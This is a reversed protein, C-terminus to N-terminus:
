RQEIRYLKTLTRIFLSKRAIAPTAMSFEDLKNKGLVKFDPGAQLVYTTGDEHLAFIRDDYAWLSATYLGGVRQKYIEKGTRAELCTLLGGHDDMNYFYDGWVVPSPHYTSAGNCKWAVFDSGSIDGDGGPKVAFVPKTGAYGAGVYLLNHRAFPTPIILPSTMGKLQWLEKGDLSYSRVVKGSVVIETRKENEWIFPTAWITGEKRPVRWLEKGSRADLAVLASQSENDNQIILRDKHLAPSSGTGWNGMTKSAPIKWSWLEKGDLDYCLVGLNGFYAYLREGDTVPTESAYSNKIHTVNSQPGEHATKQWLLKGTEFDYCYVVWRCSGKPLPLSQIYHGMKPKPLPSDAETLFSTLFIRKGWVIPSSWGRGPVEAKWVVNDTASWTTPLGKTDATGAAPGGRFAPWNTQALLDSGSLLVLCCCAFSHRMM